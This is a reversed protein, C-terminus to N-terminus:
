GLMQNVLQKTKDSFQESGNIANRLAEKFADMENHAIYILPAADYNQPKKITSSIVYEYRGKKAPDDGIFLKDIDMESRVDKLHRMKYPTYVHHYDNRFIYEQFDPSLKSLAEAFQIKIEKNALADLLPDILNELSRYMFVQRRSVGFLKAVSTNVDTGAGYFSEKKELRAMEAYSKIRAKPNEQARQAINTLIVIRRATTESIQDHRYVKCTISAYKEDKTIDYLDQFVQNRTHGGLIMYTGDEQEWVTLPHWLGYKYVSQFILAYQDPKPQGFFNWETPAPVLKDRPILRETDAPLLTQLRAEAADEQADAAPPAADQPTGDMLKRLQALREESMTANTEPNGVVGINTDSLDSASIDLSLTKQTAM